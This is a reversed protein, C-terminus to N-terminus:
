GANDSFDKGVSYMYVCTDDCGVALNSGDPGFAVAAVCDPHRLEQVCEGLELDWIRVTNDAAGSALL